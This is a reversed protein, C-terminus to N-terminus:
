KNMRVISFRDLMQMSTGLSFENLATKRILYSLQWLSVLLRWAVLLFGSDLELKKDKPLDRTVAM